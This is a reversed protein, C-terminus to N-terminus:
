SLFVEAAAELGRIILPLPLSPTQVGKGMVQSCAFPIHIFGGSIEPYRLAILDMLQYFLCNCVYVGASYSLSAPVGAQRMVSVMKRVPLGSFYAAPGDPRIPMNECLAGANDPAATDKLNIAIVEPTIMARNGAQGVCIVADPRIEGIAEELLIGARDYEVPLKRRLIEAHGIREPLRSVAEWSPNTAEGGFPEFGTFLIKM